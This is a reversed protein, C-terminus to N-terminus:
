VQGTLFELLGNKTKLKFISTNKIYKKHLEHHYVWVQVSTNVEDTRSQLVLKEGEKMYWQIILMQVEKFETLKMKDGYQMKRALYSQCLMLVNLECRREKNIEKGRKIALKRIGPKVM